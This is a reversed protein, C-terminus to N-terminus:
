VVSKRDIVEKVGALPITPAFTVRVPVPKVPAVPTVKLPVAAVAKM